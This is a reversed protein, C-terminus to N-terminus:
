CTPASRLPRPGCATAGTCGLWYFAFNVGGAIMFVIAVLEIALSDFAGISDHPDLLRRHRGDHVLPQRGGM